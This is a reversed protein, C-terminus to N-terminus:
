FYINNFINDFIFLLLYLVDKLLLSCYMVKIYIKNILRVKSYRM